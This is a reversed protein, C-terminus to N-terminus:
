GCTSRCLRTPPAFEPTSMEDVLSLTFSAAPLRMDSAIAARLASVVPPAYGAGDSHNGLPQIEPRAPAGPFESATGTREVGYDRDQRLRERAVDDRSAQTM